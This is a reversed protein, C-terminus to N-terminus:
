AKTKIKHCFVPLKQSKEDIKVFMLKRCTVFCFSLGINFIQSVRGESYTKGIHISFRLCFYQFILSIDINLFPSHFIHKRTKSIKTHGDKM